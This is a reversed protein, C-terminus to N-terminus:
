PCEKGFSPSLNSQNYKVAANCPCPNVCKKKHVITYQLYVHLSFHIERIGIGSPASNRLFSSNSPIESVSSGTLFM